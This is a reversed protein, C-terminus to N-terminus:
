RDPSHIKVVPEGAKVAEGAARPLATVMGCQGARVELERLQAACARLEQEAQRVVAAKAKEDRVSDLWEQEAQNVEAPAIVAARLLRALGDYHRRTEQQTMEAALRDAEAEALRAAKIALEGEALAVDLVALVQGRQVQQGVELRRYLVEIRALRVRSPHFVEQPEIPRYQKKCDDPFSMLREAPVKEGASVETVLLFREARFYRGQEIAQLLDRGHPQPEGPSVKVGLFLIRGNAPAPINQGKVSGAVDVRRERAQIRLIPELRRVHEGPKRHLATVAGSGAARVEHQRLRTLSARLEQEIRRVHAAQAQEEAICRKWIAEAELIPEISGCRFKAIKYLTECDKRAEACERESLLREGEAENLRQLQHSLDAEAKESDVVAVLQGRQVVEGVELRRLLVEATSLRVDAPVLREHRGLPRYRKVRGRITVVGEAPADEGECMATVLTCRRIRFYSGQAIAKELDWGQPRPEGPQVEVGLFVVKGAVEAPVEQARTTLPLLVLVVWVGFTRVM